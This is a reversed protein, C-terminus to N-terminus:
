VPTGSFRFLVFLCIFEQIIQRSVPVRDHVIMVFNEDESISWSAYNLRRQFPKKDTDVKKNSALLKIIKMFIKPLNNMNTKVLTPLCPPGPRTFQPLDSPFYAHTYIAYTRYLM